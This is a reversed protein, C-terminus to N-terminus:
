RLTAEYPDWGPPLAPPAVAPSDVTVTQRRSISEEIALMVDLVHYALEGPAREPRGARMARALELVGTGRTAEHGEAPLDEPKEAGPLHLTTVGDFRNPDPLVASGLTGTVELGARALASDFTTLLQASGGGAFEILAAVTTAVEVAFQTGARPGSGITRTERLRGGTATVREVPGLLHVLATLYYPGMDLLPGAGSRFLFEPAPHWSEPGPSQFLALATRPVGIRGADIARRATQLGAGLVTDPASAVRLGNAAAQDLLTRASDVDLALPKETWVHKGADLAALGVEVHAAPVTLNVVIEIDPEALLEAATGSRAVGHKAAQDAARGTDLDAVMLVRVDPFATLNRLYSDSITGAGVLGVGVPGRSV